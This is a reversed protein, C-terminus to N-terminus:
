HKKGRGPSNRSAKHVVDLLAHLAENVADSNPFVKAVEPDLIVINSHSVVSKYYKGRNLKGFDSRIYEKRLEDSKLKDKKMYKEKM